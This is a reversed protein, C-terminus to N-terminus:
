LMVSSSWLVGMFFLTCLFREWFVVVTFSRGWSRRSSICGARRPSKPSCRGENDKRDSIKLCEIVSCHWRLLTHFNDFMANKVNWEVIYSFQRVDNKLECANFITTLDSKFNILWLVIDCEGSLWHCDYMYIGLATSQSSSKKVFVQRRYSWQENIM